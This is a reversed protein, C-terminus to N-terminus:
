KRPKVGLIQSNTVFYIPDGNKDVKDTRSVASVTSKIRMTTGDELVYENWEESLTDYAIEDKKAESLQQVSYQQNSLPGKLEAPVNYIVNLNQGEFGYETKKETVTAPVLRRKIKLLIFRSKLYAGDKLSYKNWPERLIEFDLETEDLNPNEM